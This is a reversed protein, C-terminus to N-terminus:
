YPRNIVPSLQVRINWKSGYDNPKIISYQPEIRMKVPTNSIKVTKTLGLGVPLTLKNNVDANWNIIINPGMGITWAGPLSRRAIYQIDTQNIEERNNNGAFSVWHQVVLGITWPKGLYIIMASPGAQWKGHGFESGSATPFKFTAGVGWVTGSQKDPGFATILQMDGFGTKCTTSEAPEDITTVQNTVVPFVPRIILMKNSGVPFPMFPQFFLVNSIETGDILTGTNIYLNEQITLSWLDSLPNELRRSIEQLNMTEVDTEQAIPILPFILFLIFVFRRIMFQKSQENWYIVPITYNVM